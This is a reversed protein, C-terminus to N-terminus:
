FYNTQLIIFLAIDLEPMTMKFPPDSSIVSVTVTVKFIFTNIM